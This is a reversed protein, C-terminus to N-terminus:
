WLFLVIDKLKAMVAAAMRQKLSRKVKTSIEDDTKQDKRGTETDSSQSVSLSNEVGSELESEIMLETQNDIAVSSEEEFQERSDSADGGVSDTGDTNASQVTGVTTVLNTIFLSNTAIDNECDEEDRNLLRTEDNSNLSSTDSGEDKTALLANKAVMELAARQIIESRRRNRIYLFHVAVTM